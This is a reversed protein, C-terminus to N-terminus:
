GESHWGPPEVLIHARGGENWAQLRHGDSLIVQATSVDNGLGNLSRDLIYISRGDQLRYCAARCSAIPCACGGKMPQNELCKPLTAPFGVAKASWQRGLEQPNSATADVTFDMRRAQMYNQLAMQSFRAGEQGRWHIMWGWSGGGLLLMLIAAIGLAHWSRHPGQQKTAQLLNRRLEEPAAGPRLAERLQQDFGGTSTSKANM